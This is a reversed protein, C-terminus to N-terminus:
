EVGRQYMLPRNSCTMGTNNGGNDPTATNGNGSRDPFATGDVSTGAVCTDMPLYAQTTGSAALFRLRSQYLSQLVTLALAGQYIHLDDIDGTFYNVESRCLRVATANPAYATGTHAVGTSRRCGMSM